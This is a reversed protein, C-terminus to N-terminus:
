CALQPACFLSGAWELSAPGASGDACGYFVLHGDLTPSGERFGAGM